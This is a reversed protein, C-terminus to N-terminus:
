AGNAISLVGSGSITGAGWNMSGNVTLTGATSLSASDLTLNGAVSSAADISLSGNTIDLSGACSVSDATDSAPGGHTVTIDSFSIVADDGPGPVAGGTWMLPNDWDGSVDSAWGITTALLARTELVFVVPQARRRAMGGDRNQRRPKGLPVIRRFSVTRAHPRGAFPA